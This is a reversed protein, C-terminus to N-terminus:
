DDRKTQCREYIHMNITVVLDLTMQILLVNHKGIIISQKVWVKKIHLHSIVGLNPKM